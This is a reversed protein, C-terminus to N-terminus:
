WFMRCYLQNGNYFPPSACEPPVCHGYTTGITAFDCEYHDPYGLAGCDQKTTCEGVCCGSWEEETVGPCTADVDCFAAEPLEECFGVPAGCTVDLCQAHPLDIGPPTDRLQDYICRYNSGKSGCNDLCFWPVEELRDRGQATGSGPLCRGPQSGAWGQDSSAWCVLTPSSGDDCQEDLECPCGFRADEGCARCVPFDIGMFSAVECVAGGEPLGVSADRCYQGPGDPGNFLYSGQGDPFRGELDFSAPDANLPIDLDVCPCGPAGACDDPIPESRDEWCPCDPYGYTACSPGELMGDPNTDAGNWNAFTDWAEEQAASAVVVEMADRFQLYYSDRTLGGHQIAEAYVARMTSISPKEGAEFPTHWDWYHRLWDLITAKGCRRPTTCVNFLRGGQEAPDNFEVDFPTGFWTFVATGSGHHNFVETGYFHAMGERAGLANWELSDISYGAGDACETELPDDLSLAVDPEFSDLGTGLLMWAHGMEHTVLFKRRRHDGADCACEAGTCDCNGGSCTGQGTHIRIRAIGQSYQPAPDFHASSNNAGPSSCTGDERIRIQKGSLGFHARYSAFAGVAAMTARSTYDGVYYTRQQNAPPPDIEEAFVFPLEFDGIPLVASVVNDDADTAQAWVYMVTPGADEKVFTFCGTAPDADFDQQWGGQVLTVHVGRATVIMDPPAAGPSVVTGGPAGTGGSWYDERIWTGDGAQIVKGKDTLGIEWKVCIRRGGSVIGGLNQHLAPLPAVSVGDPGSDLLIPGTAPAGDAPRADGEAGDELSEILDESSPGVRALGAGGSTIRQLAIGQLPTEMRGSLDGANFRSRLVEGGYVMLVMGTGPRHFYVEPSFFHDERRQDAAGTGPSTTAPPDPGADAGAVASAGFLLPTTAETGQSSADPGATGLPGAPEIPEERARLDGERMPTVRAVALIQGSFRMSDLPLEFADLRVLITRSERPPLALDALDAARKTPGGADAVGRLRVKLIRGTTNLVRLGLAGDSVVALSDPTPVQDWTLVVQETPPGGGCTDAFSGEQASTPSGAALALIAALPLVMQPRISSAHRSM